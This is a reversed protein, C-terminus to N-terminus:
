KQNDKDQNDKDQDPQHELQALYAKLKEAPIRQLIEEVPVQQLIEEVTLLGIHDRRYDRRFDEMTYPMNLGELQYNEFLQNLITSTDTALSRYRAAGYAIQERLGSFLLWLVNREAQPMETLVIVRLRNTGWLM